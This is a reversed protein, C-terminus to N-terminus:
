WDKKNKKSSKPGKMNKEILKKEEEKLANLMQEAQQKSMNSKQPDQQQPKNQQDKNDPENEQKQKDKQKDQQEQLKKKAYVLNYKANADNPNKKLSETYNKIAEQWNQQKSLANGKNYFTGAKEKDSVMKNKIVNDYLVQASDYKKARYMKNGEQVNKNKLQALLLHPLMLILIILFQKMM